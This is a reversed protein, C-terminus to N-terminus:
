YYSDLKINGSKDAQIVFEEFMILSCDRGAEHATQMIIDTDVMTMELVTECLFKAKQDPTLLGRTQYLKQLPEYDSQKSQYRNIEDETWITENTRPMIDGFIPLIIDYLFRQM